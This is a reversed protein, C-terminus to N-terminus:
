NPQPYRGNKKEGQVKDKCEKCVMKWNRKTIEITDVGPNKQCLDCVLTMFEYGLSKMDSM